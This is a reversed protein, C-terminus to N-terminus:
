SLDLLLKGHVRRDVLRQFAENVDALPLVSDIRVSLEGARVAELAAELGPRRDERTLITGGYGLLSLMKRYLLRMNFTVDAGASVGLSVIRGRAAMVAVLAATYADGLVDFAVTPEFEALAAAIQEPGGVLVSDAGEATIASVKAESGTHGWVTAGASHALSVIMSGVGGSAGLVVVRDEATVRALTRVCNLATLGAIGMAAAHESAVGDPVDVVAERPVVAAQSWVGDRVFGLGEGAVLVLRGDVEGSAEGGLTRPRVADPNVQGAANYRDIPNVGGYHLEVRVEDEGPAALKVEHVELPQGLELLRAARVTDPGSAM